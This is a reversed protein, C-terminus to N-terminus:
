INKKDNLRTILFTEIISPTLYSLIGAEIDEYLLKRLTIMEVNNRMNTMLDMGIEGIHHKKLLDSITELFYDLIRTKTHEIKMRELEQKQHLCLYENTAM